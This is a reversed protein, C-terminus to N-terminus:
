RFQRCYHLGVRTCNGPFLIQCCNQKGYYVVGLGVTKKYGSSLSHTVGLRLSLDAVSNRITYQIRLYFFTSQTHEGSLAM